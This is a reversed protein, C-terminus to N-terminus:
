ELPLHKKIEVELVSKGAVAGQMMVSGKIALKPMVTTKQSFTKYDDVNQRVVDNIWSDDVPPRDRICMESGM